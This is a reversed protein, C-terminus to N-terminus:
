EGDTRLANNVGTKYKGEVEEIQEQLNRIDEKQKQSIHAWDFETDLNTPVPEAPVLEEKSPPQSSTVKQDGPIHSISDSGSNNQKEERVVRHSIQEIEGKEIDKKEKEDKLKADFMIQQVIEPRAIKEAKFENLAGATQVELSGYGFYNSFFGDNHITIDEIDQLELTSLKRDFLKELSSEVLRMNTIIWFNLSYDTFREALLLWCIIGWMYVFIDTMSYFSVGFIKFEPIYGMFQLSWIIITPVLFLVILGGVQALLFIWHRRVYLVIKEEKNLQFM